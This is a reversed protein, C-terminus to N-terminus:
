FPPEDSAAHTLAAEALAEELEAVRDLLFALDERAHAIFRADDYAQGDGHEGRIEAVIADCVTGATTPRLGASISYTGKGDYHTGWHGTTAAQERARIEAIRTTVSM